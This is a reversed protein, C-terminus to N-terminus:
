RTGDFIKRLLPELITWGGHTLVYKTLIIRKASDTIILDDVLDQTGYVSHIRESRKKTYHELAESFKQDFLSSDIDNLVGALVWADELAMSTGMGFTPSHGHYADGILVIREDYAKDVRMDETTFGHLTKTDLKLDGHYQEKVMTKLKEFFLEDEERHSKNYYALLAEDGVTQLLFAYNQMFGIIAEDHLKSGPKIWCYTLKYPMSELTSKFHANRLASHMGDAVIVLDYQETEGTNFLVHAKNDRYTIEQIYTNFRVSSKGKAKLYANGLQHVLDERRISHGFRRTDASELLKLDDGGFISLKNIKHLGNIHKTGLIKELVLYGAKWLIISFGMNMFQPGREVLTVDYKGSALLTGVSLGAPGGGSILVRIKDM